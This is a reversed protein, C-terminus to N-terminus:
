DVIYNIDFASKGKRLDFVNSITKPDETPSIYWTGKYYGSYDSFYTL